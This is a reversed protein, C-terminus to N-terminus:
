LTKIKKYIRKCNDSDRLEFFKDSLELYKKQVKYNDDIYNKICDILDDESFSVPGFGMTDYDFYGKTYDYHENIYKDRDFQYYIVPKKMYAFDFFVSSFDTILIKSEILLQQVDYDKFKAIEIEKSSCNFLDINKQMVYHPYFVLKLNNSRLISVLEKNNLFSNWIKIYDSTQIKTKNIRQLWKRFTPMVLIQNKCVSKNLNDYRALGTFQVVGKPHNFNKLIYDYETKAGCIFIDTKFAPYTLMPLFDKIIGHQLFVFPVKYIKQLNLKKYYDAVPLDGGWAHTSIRVKALSFIIFHRFSNYNVCNGISKIKNYDPSRYDIVFYIPQECHKEVVYKFFHYGNDRADYGRESIIWVNRYKDLFLKLFLSIIKASIIKTIYVSIRIIKKM